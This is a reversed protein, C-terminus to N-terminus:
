KLLELIKFSDILCDLMISSIPAKSKAEKKYETIINLAIKRFINMNKQANGSEIRCFDEKYHVDLLWHMTEVSWEDRSYRLLETASLPRSSIYLHWENSLNDNRIVQRNIAGVCALARWEESTLINSIDNSVFARRFEIRGRNNEISLDFDLGEKPQLEQNMKSNSLFIESETETYAQVESQLNNQSQIQEDFIHAVISDMLTEQNKKVVLLYDAGAEIIEDCTKKQCNLADAVVICGSINLLKILERVAPIENSKDSVPVQGMTIGLSAIHASVIHLTQESNKMKGTSRVAKGDFSVVINKLTEPLVSRVWKIFSDNLSVPDIINLLKMTWSYSPITYIGFHEILFEHIKPTNAWQLIKKIDHLGCISGLIIIQLVREISCYYGEYKKTTKM